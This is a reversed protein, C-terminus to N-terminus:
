FKYGATLAFALIRNDQYKGSVSASDLDADGLDVYVVSGGLRWRDNLTYQSGVAFRWQRDIPMDAARNKNSVPSTDYGFGTQLLWDKSPMFHVGFTAGYTDKWRRDLAGTGASVSVPINDLDSWNEWRLSGLLAWQPNIQHYVAARVNEPMLVELNTNASPGVPNISIDGRFKFDMESRYVIGLKTAPSLQFHASLIGGFVTDNANDVKLKSTGALPPLALEMDIEGYSILAGVGVAFWDNVKYSVSPVATITILSVEQIEYRGAWDDDHNLAAGSLAGVAFGVSWADNIPHTYAAGGAPITDGAQGGDGGGAPTDADPDFRVDTDIIGAGVHIQKKTLRAMGAPNHWATSGNEAWAEAGADATGMSPTFFEQTYLGGAIASGGGNMLFVLILVSTVFHQRPM